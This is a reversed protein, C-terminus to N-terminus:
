NDIIDQKIKNKGTNKASYMLNDAKNIAEDVSVPPRHYTIAGISFTVPWHNNHMVDLLLNQLKVLVAQASEYDTEPMLIAFEDGGLRAVIDTTRINKKIADSLSCLLVDGASHGLRDNIEKFNDVDLFAITMPHKYRRVREIESVALEHFYRGNMAGTLSDTRALHQESALTKELRYLLYTVILFFGLMLSANWYPIFPHPYNMNGVLDASLWTVASFISILIGSYLGRNHTVIYIPILYFLSLALYDGTLYDVVGFLIVLVIGLGTLGWKLLPEKM